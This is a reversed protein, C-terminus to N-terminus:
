CQKPGGECQPGLAFQGQQGGGGRDAASSKGIDQLETSSKETKELFRM